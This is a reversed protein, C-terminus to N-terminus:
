KKRRRGRSPAVKSILTSAFSRSPTSTEKAKAAARKLLEGVRFGAVRRAPVEVVKGTRVSRVTSATRYRSYFVGFGPIRVEDKRSLAGMIEKLSARIVDSVVTQPLRTDKSVRRVLDTKHM